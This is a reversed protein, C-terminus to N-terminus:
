QNYMRKVKEAEIVKGMANSYYAIQRVMNDIYNVFATQKNLKKTADNVLPHADIFIKIDTSSLDYGRQRDRKILDFATAKATEADGKLDAMVQREQFLLTNFEVYIDGANYAMMVQAKELNIRGNADFVNFTRKCYEDLKTLDADTIKAKAPTPQTHDVPQTLM